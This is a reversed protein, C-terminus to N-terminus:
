IHQHDARETRIKLGTSSIQHRIRQPSFSPPIAGSHRRGQEEVTGRDVMSYLLELGNKSQYTREKAELKYFYIKNNKDTQDNM